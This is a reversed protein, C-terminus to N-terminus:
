IFSVFIIYWGLCSYGAASSALGAATPFNNISCIHLKYKLAKNKPCKKKALKKVPVCSFLCVNMTLVTWGYCCIVFLLCVTSTRVQKSLMKWEYIRNTIEKLEMWGINPKPTHQLHQSQQRQVYSFIANGNYCLDFLTHKTLAMFFKCKKALFNFSQM